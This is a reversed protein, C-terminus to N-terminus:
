FNLGNLQQYQGLRQNQYVDPDPYIKYLEDSYKQSNCNPIYYKMAYRIFRDLGYSNDIKQLDVSQVTKPTEFIEIIKQRSKENHWIPVTSKDPIVIAHIHPSDAINSINKRDYRSGSVDIFSHIQTQLDFKRSFRRGLEYKCLRIYRSRFTKNIRTIAILPNKTYNDDNFKVTLGYADLKEKSGNTEYAQDCIFDSFSKEYNYQNNNNYNM